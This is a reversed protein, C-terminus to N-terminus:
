ERNRVGGGNGEVWWEEVKNVCGEVGNGVMGGSGVGNGDWRRKMGGGNGEVWWEEVESVGRWGMEGVVWRM